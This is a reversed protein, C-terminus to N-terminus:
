WFLAYLTGKEKEGFGSCYENLCKKGFRQSAINILKDEWKKLLLQYKETVVIKKCDIAKTSGARKGKDNHDIKKDGLYNWIEKAKPTNLGGVYIYNYYSPKANGVAKFLEDLTVTKDGFKNFLFEGKSQKM